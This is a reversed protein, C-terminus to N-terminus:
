KSYQNESKSYTNNDLVHWSKKPLVRMKGGVAGDRHKGGIPITADGNAVEVVTDIVYTWNSSGLTRKGTKEMRSIIVVVFPIEKIWEVLENQSVNVLENHSDLIVAKYKGSEVYDKVVDFDRTQLIHINESNVNNRKLREQLRTDAKEEALVYLVNGNKALDDAFIISFTSKGQGAVGQVFIKNDSLLNGFLSKTRNLILPKSPYTNKLIESVSPLNPLEHLKKENEDFNQGEYNTEISLNDSLGYNINSEEEIDDFGQLNRKDIYETLVELPTSASESFFSNGSEIDINTNATKIWNKIFRKFLVPKNMELAKWVLRTEPTIDEEGIKTQNMYEEATMNALKRKRELKLSELLNPIINWEGKLNKVKLFEPLARIITNKYKQASAMLEKSDLILGLLMSEFKVKGIESLYGSDDLWESQNAQTIVKSNRLEEIIKKHIPRNNYLESMTTIDETLNSIIRNVAESDLQKALAISETTYDIKQSQNEQLARSLFECNCTHGVCEEIVRFLVPYKMKEIKSKEIGFISSRKLLPEKYLKDYDYYKALHNLTMTRSNGGMVAFDTDTIPSGEAGNPVENILFRWDFNKANNLVKAQEYDKSYDRTQCNAPYKPNRSFSFPENSPILTDLEAIAYRTKFKIDNATIMVEDGYVVDADINKNKIDLLDEIREMLSKINTNNKNANHFSKSSIIRSYKNLLNNKTEITTM